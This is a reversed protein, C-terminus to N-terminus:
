AYMRGSRLREEVQERTPITSTGTGEIIFSATCNAFRASELADKCEHYRIFFSAAFVDGAGTLDVERALFARVRESRGHQYVIAGDRGCTQVLLPAAAAYRALLECDGALDELSLVVCSSQALLAEADPLASFSVRDDPGWQRLWGQPTIDLVQGPAVAMFERSVEQAVPGLHVIGAKRWASPLAALELPAAVSRLYQIRGEPTYVNEFVTDQVSPLSLVEIGPIDLPAPPTHTSTLVAVRQGLRQATLACYTVTGGYRWGGPVLDRTVHGIVLYDPIQEFV